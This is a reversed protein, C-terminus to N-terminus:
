AQNGNCSLRWSWSVFAFRNYPQATMRLALRKTKIQSSIPRQRRRLQSLPVLSLVAIKSSVSQENTGKSFLFM